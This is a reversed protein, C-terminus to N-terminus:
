QVRLRGGQSHSSFEPAYMCQISAIGNSYEGKASVFVPYEFVYTGKRLYDFFFHTAIDKTSEYYGLGNQYQYRSLVNQPEFCAARMDKLHVYEMDRDVKVVIRVKVKDGVKLDNGEKIQTLVPGSDTNREIYLDKQLSLPTAASTVKDMDEFYQWYVAGWSTVPEKGGQSQVDLKIAGMQQQVAAGEIRRKFYGTGAESAFHATSFVTDGLQVIVRPASALWDSGQLLLAYVADATTKAAM